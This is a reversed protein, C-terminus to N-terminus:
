RTTNESEPQPSKEEADCRAKLEKVEPYAVDDTYRETDALQECTTPIRKEDEHEGPHAFVTLSVASACAVATLLLTRITM